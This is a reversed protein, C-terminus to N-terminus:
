PQVARSLCLVPFLYHSLHLVSNASPKHLFDSPSLIKTTFPDDTCVRDSNAVYAVMGHVILVSM